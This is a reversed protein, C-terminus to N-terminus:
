ILGGVGMCYNRLKPISGFIGAEQKTREGGGGSSCRRKSQFNGQNGTYIRDYYNHYDLLDSSFSFERHFLGFHITYLM